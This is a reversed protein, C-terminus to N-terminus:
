EEADPKGRRGDKRVFRAPAPPPADAEGESEGEEDGEGLYAMQAAVVEASTECKAYDDLPNKNLTLFLEGFPLASLVDRAQRAEGVIYLAAGIAEATSLVFPKGYNIPNAAVLFPLARSRTSGLLVPFAEEAQAWSCDLALLGNKRMDDLDERSLAKKAFPNLLVSHRPAKKVDDFLLAKGHKQLRLATNKKPDDQAAHYVHVPITGGIRSPRPPGRPRRGSM